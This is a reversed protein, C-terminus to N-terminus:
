AANEVPHETWVDCKECYIWFVLSRVGSEYREEYEYRESNSPECCYMCIINM